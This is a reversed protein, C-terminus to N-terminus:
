PIRHLGANIFCENVRLASPNKCLVNLGFPKIRSLIMRFTETLEKQNM